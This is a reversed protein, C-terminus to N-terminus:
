RESDNSTEPGSSRVVVAAAPANSGRDKVTPHGVIDVLGARVLGDLAKSLGSGVIQSELVGTPVRKVWELLKAEKPTM